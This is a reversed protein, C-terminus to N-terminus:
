IKTFTLVIIKVDCNVKKPGRLLRPPRKEPLNRSEKKRKESPHVNLHSASVDNEKINKPAFPLQFSGPDCPELSHWQQKQKSAPIGTWGPKQHPSGNSRKAEKRVSSYFHRYKWYSRVISLLACLSVHFSSSASLNWKGRSHWIQRSERTKVTVTTSAKQQWRKGAQCVFVKEM